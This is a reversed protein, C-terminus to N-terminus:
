ELDHKKSFNCYIFRNLTLNPQKILEPIKTKIM